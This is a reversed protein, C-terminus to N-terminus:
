VVTESVEAKSDFRAFLGNLTQVLEQPSEFSQTLLMSNVIDAYLITVDHYKEIYLESFPRSISNQSDQSNMEFKARIDNRVRKMLHQPLCSSLLQEQQEREFNLKYRSEVSHRHDLFARRVVIEILHKVYFAACFAFLYFLADSTIYKYHDYYDKFTATSNLPFPTLETCNSDSPNPWLLTVTLECVVILLTTVASYAPTPYPLLLENCVILYYVPRVRKWKFNDKDGGLTFLFGGYEAHLMALLVTISAMARAFESQFWKENHHALILFSTFVIIATLRLLAAFPFAFDPQLVFLSDPM